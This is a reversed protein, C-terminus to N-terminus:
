SLVFDVEVVRAVCMAFDALFARFGGGSSAVFVYSWMHPAGCGCGCGCGVLVVDADVYPSMPAFAFQRSRVPM